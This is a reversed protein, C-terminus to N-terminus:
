VVLCGHAAVLVFEAASGARTGFFVELIEAHDSCEDGVVCDSQQAVEHACDAEAVDVLYGLVKGFGERRAEISKCGKLGTRKM